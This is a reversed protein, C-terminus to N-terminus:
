SGTPTPAFLSELSNSDEADGEQKKLMNVSRAETEIKKKIESPLMKAVTEVELGNQEAFILAADIYSCRKKNVISQIIKGIKEPSKVVRQEVMEILSNVAAEDNIPPTTTTMIM